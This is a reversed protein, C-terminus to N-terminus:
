LYRGRHPGSYWCSCDWRERALLAAGIEGMQATAATLDGTAAWTRPTQPRFLEAPM